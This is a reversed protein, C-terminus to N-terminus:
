QRLSIKRIAAWPFFAPRQSANGEDLAVGFANVGRLLGPVQENTVAGGSQPGQLTIYVSQGIWSEPKPDVETM